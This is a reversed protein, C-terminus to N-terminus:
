SRRRGATGGTVFLRREPPALGELGHGRLLPLAKAVAAGAAAEDLELVLIRALDGVGIDAARQEVPGAAAAAVVLVPLRLHRVADAERRLRDPREGPKRRGAGVAEQCFAPIEIPPM